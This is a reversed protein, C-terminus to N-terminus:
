SPTGKGASLIPPPVSMALFSPTTVSSALAVMNPIDVICTTRADVAAQSKGSAVGAFADLNARAIRYSKGIRTAPLRGDRIYRLVTNPHLNLQEAAQDVTVLYDSM